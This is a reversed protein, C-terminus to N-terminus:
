KKCNKSLFFIKIEIKLSASFLGATPYHFKGKARHKPTLSLPLPLLAVFVILELLLVVKRVPVLRYLSREFCSLFVTKQCQMLLVDLLFLFDVLVVSLILPEGCISEYLAFRAYCCIRLFVPRSIKCLSFPFLARFPVCLLRQRPLFNPFM